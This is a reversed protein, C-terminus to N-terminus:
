AAQQRQGDQRKLAMSQLRDWLAVFLWEPCRRKFLLMGGKSGGSRRRLLQLLPDPRFSQISVVHQNILELLPEGNEPIAALLEQPQTLGFVDPGMPRFRIPDLLDNVLATRTYAM